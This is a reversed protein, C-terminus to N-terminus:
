AEDGAAGAAGGAGKRSNFREQAELVGRCVALEAADAALRVMEEAEAKEDPTFRGLVYDSWERGEPAPGCGLRLRAYDSTGLRGSISELGKHGGNGGRERIRLRGLPLNIDDCIVLLSDPSLRRYSALADGSLNMYTGPKVLTITRGCHDWLAQSVKRDIKEWKLGYRRAILDLTEFGLNHRTDRYKRGPNGLGCLFSIDSM